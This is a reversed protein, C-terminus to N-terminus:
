TTLFHVFLTIKHNKSTLGLGNCKTYIQVYGKDCVMLNDIFLTKEYKEFFGNSDLSFFLVIDTKYLQFNKLIFYKNENQFVVGLEKREFVRKKGFYQCM